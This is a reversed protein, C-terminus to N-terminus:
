PRRDGPGAFRELVPLGILRCYGLSLANLLRAAVGPAPTLRGSLLPLIARDPTVREAQIVRRQAAIWRLHRAVWWRARLQSTVLALADRRWFRALHGVARILRKGEDLLLLPVLALLTRREYFLLLNTLRNKEAHRALVPRLAGRDRAVSSGEHYVVAEPVRESGLGLLRLRWGLYVDEYYAFYEDPFPRRVDARRLVLCVGSATFCQRYDALLPLWINTGTVSSTGNRLAAVAAPDPVRLGDRWAM